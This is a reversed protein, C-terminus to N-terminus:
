NTIISALKPAQHAMFGALVPLDERSTHGCFTLREETSAGSGEPQAMAYYHAWFESGGQGGAIIHDNCTPSGWPSYENGLWYQAKVPDGM